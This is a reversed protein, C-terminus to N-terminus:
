TLRKSEIRLAIVPLSESSHAKKLILSKIDKNPSTSPFFAHTAISGEPVLKIKKFMVIFSNSINLIFM